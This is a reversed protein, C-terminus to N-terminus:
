LTQGTTNFVEYKLITYVYAKTKSINKRKRLSDIKADKIGLTLRKMSEKEEKIRKHKSSTM